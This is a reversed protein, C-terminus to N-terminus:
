QSSSAPVSRRVLLVLVTVIGGARRRAFGYIPRNLQAELLSIVGAIAGVPHGILRYLRDPYGAAVEILAAILALLLVDTM